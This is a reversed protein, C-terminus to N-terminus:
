SYLQFPPQSQNTQHQSERKQLPTISIFYLLFIYMYLYKYVVVDSWSTLSGTNKKVAEFWVTFVSPSATVGATRRDTKGTFVDWSQDESWPSWQDLHLLFVSGLGPWLDNMVNISGNKKPKKKELMKLLGVTSLAADGPGVSRPKWYADSM